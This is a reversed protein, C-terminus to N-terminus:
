AAIQKGTNTDITVIRGEYLSWAEPDEDAEAKAEDLTHYTDYVETTGAIPFASEDVKCGLTAFPTEGTFWKAEVRIFAGEAILERVTKFGGEGNGLYIHRLQGASGLYWHDEYPFAYRDPTIESAGIIATARSLTAADNM